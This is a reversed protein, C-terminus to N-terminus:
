PFGVVLHPPMSAAERKARSPSPLPLRLNGEPFSLLSAVWGANSFRSITRIPSFRPIHKGCTSTCGTKESKRSATKVQTRPSQAPIATWHASEPLTPQEAKQASGRRLGLAPM